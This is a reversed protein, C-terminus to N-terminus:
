RPRRYRALKDMAEDIMKGTSATLEASDALLTGADAAMQGRVRERMKEVDCLAVSVGNYLDFLRNQLHALGALKGFHRAFRHVAKPDHLGAIIQVESTKWSVTDLDVSLFYFGEPVQSIEVLQPRNHDLSDKIVTLGSILDRLIEQEKQQTSRLAMRANVQMAAPVGLIVGALTAALGPCFALWFWHIPPASPQQEAATQATISVLRPAHIVDDAGLLGSETASTLELVEVKTAPVPAAKAVEVFYCFGASLLLAASIM